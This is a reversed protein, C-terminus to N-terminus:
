PLEKRQRSRESLMSRVRATLPSSTYRAFFSRAEDQAAADDGNGLLAGIRLVQAEALLAGDPFARAYENLTALAAGHDHRREAREAADLLAIEHALPARPPPAPPAAAPSPLVDAPRPRAAVPTPLASPATTAAPPATTAAPPAPFYVPMPAAPLVPRRAPAVTTRAAQASAGTAATHRREAVARHPAPAPIAPATPLQPQTAAGPGELPPQMAPEAAEPPIAVPARRFPAAAVVAVKTALARHAQHRAYIQHAVVGGGAIVTAASVLVVVKAALSSAIAATAPAGVSVAIPVALMKFIRRRSSPPRRYARAADLLSAALLDDGGDRFRPPERM